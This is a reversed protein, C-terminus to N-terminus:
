TGIGDLDREPLSRVRKIRLDPIPYIGLNPRGLVTSYCEQELCTVGQVLSFSATYCSKNKTVGLEGLTLFM